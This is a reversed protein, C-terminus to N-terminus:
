YALAAHQHNQKYAHYAKHIKHAVTKTKDKKRDAKSYLLITKKLHVRHSEHVIYISTFLTHFPKLESRVASLKLQM